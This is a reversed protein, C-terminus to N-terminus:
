SIRMAADASCNGCAGANGRVLHAYPQGAKVWEHNMLEAASKRKGPEDLLCDRMFDVCARTVHQETDRLQADLVARLDGSAALRQGHALLLEVPVQRGEFGPVQFPYALRTTILLLIGLSWIDCMLPDYKQGRYM